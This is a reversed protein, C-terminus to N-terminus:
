AVKQSRREYITVGKANIEKQFFMRKASLSKFERPTYVLIDVGVKPHLLLLVEKIRDLFSKETDKIIVLDIDSWKNIKGDALSGFLIIKKPSYENKLIETWRKLENHLNIARNKAPISEVYSKIYEVM